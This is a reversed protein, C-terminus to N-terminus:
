IKRVSDLRASSTQQHLDQLAQRALVEQLAKVAQPDRRVPKVLPDPWGPRDWTVRPARYVLRDQRDSPVMQAVLGMREMREVQEMQAQLERRGRREALAWLVTGGLLGLLALLVRRM